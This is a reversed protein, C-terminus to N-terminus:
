TKVRRLLKATAFANWIAFCAFMACLIVAWRADAPANGDVLLWADKPVDHQKTDKIADALGRHRPGAKDFRVLRGSVEAPPVWRVNEGRPPVRVEVWVDDRGAVPMLRFSDSVLPREYRIAGGAGLMVAGHVYQNEVFAAPAATTLDGVDHAGAPAFAYAADRRLALLMAVSALATVVLLAVTLTRGQKPPDPLELLEPDLEEKTEEGNPSLDTAEADTM